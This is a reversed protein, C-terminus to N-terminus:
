IGKVVCCGRRDQRIHNVLLEALPLTNVVGM